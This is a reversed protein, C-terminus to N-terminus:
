QQSTFNLESLNDNITVVQPTFQHSKSIAGFVYTAGSEVAEFKYYGFMNTRTTRRNGSQDTLYVTAGPLGRGNSTFVRGSVSVNSATVINNGTWIINVPNAIEPLTNFSGLFTGTASWRHVQNGFYDTAYVDGNPGRTVGFLVNGGVFQRVFTGNVTREFVTETVSDTMLITNTSSSYYMSSADGQGNDLTITSIQTNTPIDFIDVVGSRGGAWLVNGPLVAVGTYNFAGVTGVLTGGTTFNAISTQSNRGIFLNGNVWIKTDIPNGVETNVFSSVLSGAPNYFRVENNQSSAVVNGNSLLDLGAACGFGTTLNSQFVFSSNYVAVNGSHCGSVIFDTRSYQASVKSTAVSILFLAFFTLTLNFYRM